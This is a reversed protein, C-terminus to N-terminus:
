TTLIIKLVPQDFGEMELDTYCSERNLVIRINVNRLKGYQASMMICFSNGSFRSILYEEIIEIALIITKKLQNGVATNGLYIENNDWEWGTPETYSDPYLSIFDFYNKESFCKEGNKEVLKVKDFFTNIEKKILRSNAHRIWICDKASLLQDMLFNTEVIKKM